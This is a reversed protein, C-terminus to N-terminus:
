DNFVETHKKMAIKLHELATEFDFRQISAKLVSFEQPFAANFLGSYSEFLDGAAANDNELLDVLRSYIIGLKENDVPVTVADPKAPLKTELEVVLENLTKDFQLILSELNDSRKRLALELAQASEQLCVAGLNGSVGKITHALREASNWDDDNLAQRLLMTTDRHGAIFKHLMSLFLQKKGRVRRLGLPIDIGTISEPFEPVPELRQPQGQLTALASQRPAIWKLLTAWLQVPDIPKAIHDNMGAAICAARDQPMVNATMAIIPITALDPHKRIELTAAVGDMVPMQMDMLVLDYKKSRVKELAILGNEAMDVFLGVEVLLEVAVERNIENDEVLLIRAGSITGLKEVLVSSTEVVGYQQEGQLACIATDFLVSPTVPKTLIKEIGTDDHALAAIEDRGFATIMIIHPPKALGLAKIQRATEIGDMEPMQWDLFVINFPQGSLDAQKVEGVAMPGSPVAVVNFTMAQLMDHMVTRVNENDDVVLARCGRLDPNPLLSRMQAGIGARVTFWFTSGVGEISEVGVEGGMMEALGKSIALGLGTGGYKRTTSMDAQQFSLFLRQQQEATLGIGTDRVACYLLVDTDTREKVQVSISIEGRETFKVANSGYNLLIQGIRLPDGILNHPVDAGIDYILELGKGVAKENLFGALTCLIRELEFDTNEVTLKGAEMKSFDLIDNIIGLLHQGSGQIKLLYERQRPTLDTKLVLYSMGIIANMPTRIEHSMNALFVSKAENAAEAAEKAQHLQLEFQKRATLDVHTGISRTPRGNEDRTVVKGRSLIWKYNGEKTRMRFEIEYGGDNELLHTAQAVVDAREDPHLLDIWHSQVDTKIEGPEYGLMRFYSPSCFNSNSVMDWDWLGDATANLAYKFREESIQLAITRETVLKELHERYNELELAAKKSETVDKFFWIRGLHEDAASILQTSYRDCYRGDAFEIEDRSKEEPHQYLYDVKTLFEDPYKLSGVVYELIRRDDGNALIDQPIQWIEAFRHNSFKVRGDNDAILIGEISNNSQAELLMTKYALAEAARKSETIDRWVASILPQGAMTVPKLILTVDRLTGDKHRHHTELPKLSGAMTMEINAAIQEQTHEAQIDRVTLTLFEERTYGLSQHAATNFDVFRGTQVDVLIIADTTQAFMTTILQERERAQEISHRRNVVDVLRNAIADLLIREERLFPGEDEHPREELYAVTVRIDRGQQSTIGASQMWLTETFGATSFSTDGYEIRAVTIEPFQWGPCIREVLQQLQDELPLSIDETLAFAEYLCHQEKVREQLLHREYQLSEHAQELEATRERVQQEVTDRATILSQETQKLERFVISFPERIGTVFIARYILYFSALKFFHGAMNAFDYVGVYSTFAFEACVAFLSSAILLQYTKLSFVTRIRKLLFLACCIIAIILYESAIKFATLGIGEVYCAPFVGSFIAGTLIFFILAYCASLRFINVKKKHAIFATALTLAQLYRAAIWLQTPLNSGYGPFINIGKFSLTHILDICACAAYGIGIIKLAGNELITSSNWVLLAIAFAIAITLLEIVSHFLPYSYSRISFLAVAIAILATVYMLNRPWRGKEAGTIIPPPRLHDDTAEINKM